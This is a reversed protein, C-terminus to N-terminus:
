SPFRGLRLMVQPSGDAPAAEAQVRLAPPTGQAAFWTQYAGEFFGGAWDQADPGFAMALPSCAHVISLHDPQEQLTAFGWDIAEWRANFAAGLQEVTDCREVPFALAIREGIRRFLQRIDEPPLGAGLEAAFARNFAMWQASCTRSEYYSLLADKDTM